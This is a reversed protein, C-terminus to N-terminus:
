EINEPHEEMTLTATSTLKIADFLPGGSGGNCYENPGVQFTIVNEGEVLEIDGLKFQTFTKGTTKAETPVTFEEYSIATGNVSIIFNEPNLKMAGLETGLMVRLTATAAADSTVKFTIICNTSHTSGVYFGNSADSSEVIMNLGAAAGSIGGGVVDNMYTFETEFQYTTTDAGGETPATTTPVDQKGETTTPTDDGCATLAFMMALACLLALVKKVTAIKM